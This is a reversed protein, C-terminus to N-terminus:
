ASVVGTKVLAEKLKDFTVPKKLIEDAGYNRASALYLDSSSVAIMVPREPLEQIEKMAEIGNKVDMIIDILCAKPQYERVREALFEGSEEEEVDFGMKMLHYSMMGRFTADDDAVIITDNM